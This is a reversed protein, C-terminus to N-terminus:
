GAIPFSVSSSSSHFPLSALCPSHVEMWVKKENRCCGSLRHSLPNHVDQILSPLPSLSLSLTQKSVQELISEVELDGKSQWTALESTIARGIEKTLQQFSKLIKIQHEMWKRADPDFPKMAIQIHEALEVVRKPVSACFQLISRATAYDEYRGTSLLDATKLAVHARITTAAARTPTDFGYRELGAPACLMTVVRHIKQLQPISERPILLGPPFCLLPMPAKVLEPEESMNATPLLTQFACTVHM